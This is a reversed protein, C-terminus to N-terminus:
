LRGHLCAYLIKQLWVRGAGKPDLIPALYSAAAMCDSLRCALSIIIDVNLRSAPPRM